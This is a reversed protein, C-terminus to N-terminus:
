RGSEARPLQNRPGPGPGALRWAGRPASGQHGSGPEVHPVPDICPPSRRLGLGGHSEPDPDAVRRGAPRIGVGM